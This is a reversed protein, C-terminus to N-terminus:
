GDTFNCQLDTWRRQEDPTYRPHDRPHVLARIWQDWLGDPQIFRGAHHTGLTAPRDYRLDTRPLYRDLYATLIEPDADTGIRALAFCYAGGSYCVESAPASRRHARPVLHAPRRRGTLRRHSTLAM